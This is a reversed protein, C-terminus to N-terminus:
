NEIKGYDLKVIRDSLHFYQDDPTVAIVAKGKSKLEPLLETYFIKKFIPDQDCAWEDFIYIPRDELYATM